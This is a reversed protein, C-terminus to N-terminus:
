VAEPAPFLQQMLGQKHTKLAALQHSEAAIQTDLSSLCDAIREQEALHPVSLMTEAVDSQGITTMTATKSKSVLLSRVNSSKLAYHLFLPKVIRVNPRLRIVHGDFTTKQDSGLYINSYAIGERVLSSRTFFVDGYCVLKKEAEDKPAQAFALDTEVLPNPLYMESVNILRYPGADTKTNNFIGNTLGQAAVDELRKKQWVVENRFEPFRLRPYTEDERPFLQQMLGRKHAKLAEVKRGQAAIVEDLSTLCDAIKQQEALQPYAVPIQEIASKNVAPVVGGAYDILPVQCWLYYVFRDKALGAIAKVGAANNDVVCPRTTIARKNSRIAEGIKAFVTADVPMPKARLEVMTDSDIHNNADTLFVGGADVCASIDSVKYFPFEGEKDGQFKEPFGYGQLVDVIDSAKGLAWEPAGRFEPFRLRPMVAKSGQKAM